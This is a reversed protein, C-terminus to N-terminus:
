NSQSCDSLSVCRLVTFIVVKVCDIIGKRRGNPGGLGAVIRCKKRKECDALGLAAHIGDRGQQMAVHVCEDSM